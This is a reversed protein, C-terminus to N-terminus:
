KGYNDTDPTTIKPDKIVLSIKQFDINKALVKIRREGSSIITVPTWNQIATPSEDEFESTALFKDDM